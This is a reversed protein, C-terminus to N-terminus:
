MELKGMYDEIGGINKANVYGYYKFIMEAQGSRNGSHCYLYIPASKDQINEAIVSDDVFIDQLEINISNPIHGERYEEVTRVDVLYAGKTSNCEKVGKNIDFGRFLNFIGM